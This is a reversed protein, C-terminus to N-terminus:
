WTFIDYRVTVIYKSIGHYVSKNAENPVLFHARLYVWGYLSLM